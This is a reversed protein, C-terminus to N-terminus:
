HMLYKFEDDTTNKRVRTYLVKLYTNYGNHM